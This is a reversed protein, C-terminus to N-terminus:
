RVLRPQSLDLTRALERIRRRGHSAELLRVAENVTELQRGRESRRSGLARESVRSRIARRLSGNM